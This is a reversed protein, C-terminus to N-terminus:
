EITYGANTLADVIQQETITYAGEGIRDYIIYGNHDVLYLRPWYRNRYSRWIRKDNDQVVPWTIGENSIAAQVNALPYEWSLEPTHVGLIVLGNDQYKAWWDRVYPM